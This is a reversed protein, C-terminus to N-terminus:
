FPHLAVEPCLLRVDSQITLRNQREHDVQQNAVTYPRDTEDVGNHQRDAQQLGHEAQVGPHQSKAYISAGVAHPRHAADAAASCCYGSPRTPGPSSLRNSRANRAM